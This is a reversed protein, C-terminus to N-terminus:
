FKQQSIMPMALLLEKSRIIYIKLNTEHMWDNAERCVQFTVIAGNDNLIWSLIILSNIHVKICTRNHLLIELAVCLDRFSTKMTTKTTMLVCYLIFKTKFYKNKVYM